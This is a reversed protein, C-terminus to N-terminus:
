AAFAITLHNSQLMKLRVEVLARFEEPAFPTELFHINLGRSACQRVWKETLPWGSSVIIPYTVGKDLLRECIEQGNLEGMKDDTILLDPNTRTLEHWATESNVFSQVDANKLWGCLLIRMMELVDCEDNVAIIGLPSAPPNM